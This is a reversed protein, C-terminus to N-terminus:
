YKHNTWINGKKESILTTKYTGSRPPTQHPSVSSCSVDRHACCSAYSPGPAYHLPHSARAVVSQLQHHHQHPPIGKTRPPPSLRSHSPLSTAALAVWSRPYYEGDAVALSWCCSRKRLRQTVFHSSPTHHHEREETMAEERWRSGGSSLKERRANEEGSHPIMGDFERRWTPSVVVEIMM